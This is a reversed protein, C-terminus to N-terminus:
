TFKILIYRNNKNYNLHPLDLQSRGVLVDVPISTFQNTVVLLWHCKTDIGEIYYYLIALQIYLLQYMQIM